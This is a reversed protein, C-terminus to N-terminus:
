IHFLLVWKGCVHCTEQNKDVCRVEGNKEMEFVSVGNKGNRM